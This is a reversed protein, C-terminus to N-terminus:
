LRAKFRVKLWKKLWTKSEPPLKLVQEFAKQAEEGVYQPYGGLKKKVDKKFKPDRMIKRAAERYAKVIAPSTGKPLWLPKQVPFGAVFVARWADYAPGSPKKGHIIEYAEAFHPLEPAVPDRVLNGNKDLQGWSFLPVAKGEKILPKVAQIYSTTTQYDINSEGQEFAIRAPGRAYGFVPKVKLGLIEFALLPVIDLSTASISAFFLKGKFGKLDTLKKVGTNPSIFAFGGMPSALVIKLDRYEYKVRRDGLLYPVQNSGTSGLIDLGNPRNRVVWKNFGNIGGGGPINRIVITPNGPLHKSLYPAYIRAWRDTGGGVNFTVTFVVTKGAFNVEGVAELPLALLFGLIGICLTMVAKRM